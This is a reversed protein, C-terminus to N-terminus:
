PRFERVTDFDWLIKGDETSYGRLHGDNSGSFRYRSDSHRCRVAYPQLGFARGPHLSRRAYWVKRRRRHTARHPRRGAQPKSYQPAYRWPRHSSDQGVVGHIRLGEPWREGHGVARRRQHRYRSGSERHADAM